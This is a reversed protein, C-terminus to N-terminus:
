EWPNTPKAAEKAHQAIGPVKASLEEGLITSLRRVTRSSLENREFRIRDLQNRRDQWEQWAAPDMGGFGGSERAVEIMRTSIQDYSGEFEQELRTLEAKQAETLGPLALAKELLPGADLRDQFIRPFAQRAYAQRLSRAEEPPLKAAVGELMDRVIKRRRDNAANSKKSMEAMREQVEVVAGMADESGSEQMRVGVLEMERQGDMMTRVVERTADRLAPGQELLVTVAVSEFRDDGLADAIVGVVDVSSERSESFMGFFGQGAIQTSRGLALADVVPGQAPAVVAHKIDDFFRSEVARVQALAEERAKYAADVGASSRRQGEQGPGWGQALSEQIRQVAPDVQEKWHELYDSHLTELIARQGEDLGLRRVWDAIDGADLQPPIFQDSGWRMGGFMENEEASAVADSAAAVDGFSEADEPAGRAVRDLREALDPGVIAKAQELAATASKRRKERLANSEEQRAQMAEGSFDFPSMELAFKDQLAIQENEIKEDDGRWSSRLQELAARQGDDIKRLRIAAGLLRDTESESGVGPYARQIFERRFALAKEEPLMATLQRRTTHNLKAIDASKQRSKLGSEKFAEQMAEMFAKMKEPDKMLEENNVDGFGLATLREVLDSMMGMGAENLEVFRKAIQQEYPVLVSDLSFLTERDIEIAALIEALDAPMGGSMQVTMSGRNASRERATRVRAFRQMQPDHLTGQIGDFLRTDLQRIRQNLRQWSDVYNKMTARDPMQGQMQRSSQLFKEIEGERLRNFEEKYQEHLTDIAEWQSPDPAVYRNLWLALEQSSIPDPLQGSTGQAQSSPAAVLVACVSLVAAILHRLPSRGRSACRDITSAGRM